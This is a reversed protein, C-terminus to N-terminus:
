QGKITKQYFPAPAVTARIERISNAEVTPRLSDPEGWRVVVETGPESYEVNVLSVSLMARANASFGSYQSIGVRVGNKTVEDFQFTSYVALPLNIVKSKGEFLSSRMVDLVDNANWVLTVKKRRPNKIKQALAERGIFDQNFDILPGYGVEIPDMYYDVIDDSLLSGGVSGMVEMHLPTMWERYPKMESSHYIAPCPLPMWSSELCTTPYALAGVKRLEYKKGAAEITEKILQADKWPGFLEFGPVGAM